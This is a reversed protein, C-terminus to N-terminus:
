ELRNGKGSIREQLVKVAVAAMAEYGRENPHLVDSYFEGRPQRSNYTLFATYFDLLILGEALAYERMEERYLGLIYEDQSFNCPIPLGIIPVVGSRLAIEAMKRINEQVAVAEVRLCADNTGGMIIVHSPLLSMVDDEFRALM